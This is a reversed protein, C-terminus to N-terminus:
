LRRRAAKIADNLTFPKGDDPEDAGSAPLGMGGRGMPGFSRRVPRTKAALYSNTKEIAWDTQADISLPKGGEDAAPATAAFGYFVPMDEDAIKGRTRARNEIYSRVEKPDAQQRPAPEDREPEPEPPERREPPAPAANRAAAIKRHAKAWIRAAQEEHDPADEPLANVARVAELYYGTAEDEDRAEDVERRASEEAAREAAEREEKLRKNEQEARTTRALLSKYGNEAEAQSKFRFGAPEDQRPEPPDAHGPDDREPAEGEEGDDDQGIPGAGSEAPHGVIVRQNRMVEDLSAGATSEEEVEVETGAM